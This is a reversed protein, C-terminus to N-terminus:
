YDVVVLPHNQIIEKSTAITLEVPKDSAPRGEEKQVARRMIERLKARKIRELEKNEDDKM